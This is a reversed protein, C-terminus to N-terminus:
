INEAFNGKILELAMTHQPRDNNLILHRVKTVLYNGTELRSQESKDASIAAPLTCKIVDGIRIESDGYVHIRTINQSVNQTFAALLSAMEPRQTAPLDSSIPMIKRVATTQGHKRIFGSTSTPAGNKDMNKFGARGDDKYTVKKIDGTVLDFSNVENKIGGEAAKTITDAFSIVNYSIINRISVDKINDHRVTDFFFQKDNHESDVSKQGKQILKELTTFVFGDRSEYFVYSSSKFEGSVSRRRLFDIAKFPTMRTITGKEIGTTKDIIIPKETQLDEKVISTVIDHINGNYSRNVLRTANRMLEVSVLQLRYTVMMNNDSVKKDEIKNVRFLYNVPSTSGPTKFKISVYEEGIIPFSQYLGIADAVTLECFICPSMLSEWIDIGVVQSMLSYKRQRDESLLTISDISIDGPQIDGSPSKVTSDAESTVGGLLAAEIGSFIDKVLSM